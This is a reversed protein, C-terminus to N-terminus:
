PHLYAAPNNKETFVPTTPGSHEFFALFRNAPKGVIRLAPWEQQGGRNDDLTRLYKAVPALRFNL